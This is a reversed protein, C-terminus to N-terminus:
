IGYAYPRGPTHNTAPSAGPVRRPMAAAALRRAVYLSLCIAATNAVVLATKRVVAQRDRLQPARALQRGALLGVAGVAVSLSSLGTSLRELWAASTVPEPAAAIERAQEAQHMWAKNRDKPNGSGQSNGMSQQQKVLERATDDPTLRGAQTYTGPNVRNERSM